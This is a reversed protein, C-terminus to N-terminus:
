DNCKVGVCYGIRDTLMSYGLRKVMFKMTRAVDYVDIGTKNHVFAVTAQKNWQSDVIVKVEELMYREGVDDYGDLIMPCEGRRFDIAPIIRQAGHSHYCSFPVRYKEVYADRKQQVWLAQERPSMRSQLYALTWTTKM